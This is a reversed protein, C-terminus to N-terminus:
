IPRGQATLPRSEHCDLLAGGRDALLAQVSSHKLAPTNKADYVTFRAGDFRVVGEQTGIWLYGDRTQAIAQVSNEPLGQETQWVDRVYQTIAKRPDLALCPAALALLAPLLFAPARRCLRSIELRTRRQTTLKL